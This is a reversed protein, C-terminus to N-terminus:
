PLDRPLGQPLDRPLGRPLGGADRVAAVIGEPDADMAHHRGRVERFMGRPAALALERCWRRPAIPDLAGRVVVLRGPVHPVVDELRHALMHRVQRAYHPLSCRLVYDVALTALARPREGVHRDATPGVLVGAPAERPHDAMAQAVVQAGMSHGVLVVVPRPTGDPLDLVHRRVHEAVVAAHEEISVDRPARPAAGFGPLDVAHVAVRPLAGPRLLARRVPDFARASSGVGHVLVVVVDPADAGSVHVVATLDGVACRAEATGASTTSSASWVGSRARAFRVRETVHQTDDGATASSTSRTTLQRRRAM